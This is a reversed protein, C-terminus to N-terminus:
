VPLQCLIRLWTQPQLAKMGTAAKHIYINVAAWRECTLQMIAADFNAVDSQRFCQLQLLKALSSLVSQKGRLISCRCFSRWAHPIILAHMFNTSSEMASNLRLM